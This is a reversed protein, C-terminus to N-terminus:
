EGRCEKRYVGFKRSYKKPLKHHFEKNSCDSFYWGKNHYEYCGKYGMSLITIKRVKDKFMTDYNEGSRLKWQEVM